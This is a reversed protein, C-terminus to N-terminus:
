ANRWTTLANIVDDSRTSAAIICTKVGASKALAALRTSIVVAMIQAADVGAVTLWHNLAEGSTLIVADPMGNSKISQWESTTKEPLRRQYLNLYDVRVGQTQLSDRVVNRGGEGRLVLLRDGRQLQQFVPLRLIGESNEESPIIPDLLARRLVDATSEGVALWQIDVPWQPWYDSLLRLGLEAATPSVVFVWRYRDLDLLWQRQEDTLPLPQIELLPLLHVRAGAAVLASQLQEARARPRTNIISLGALDVM